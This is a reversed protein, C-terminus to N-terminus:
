CHGRPDGFYLWLLLPKGSKQSEVLGDFITTKWPIQQFALDKTSPQAHTKVSAFSEPTLSTPVTQALFLAAVIVNM